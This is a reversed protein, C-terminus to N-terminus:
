EYMRWVGRVSCLSATRTTPKGKLLVSGAGDSVPGTASLFQQHAVRLATGCWPHDFSHDFGCTPMGDIQSNLELITQAGVLRTQLRHPGRALLTNPAFPRSKLVTRM